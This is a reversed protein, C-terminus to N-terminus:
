HSERFDVRAANTLARRILLVAGTLFLLAGYIPLTWTLMSLLGLGLMAFLLARQEGLATWRVKRLLKCALLAVLIIGAVWGLRKANSELTRSVPRGTIDADGLPTTFRYLKGRKPIQIELGALGAFQPDAIGDSLVVWKDDPAGDANEELKKEGAAEMRSGPATFANAAGVDVRMATPRDSVGDFVTGRQALNRKTQENLRQEYAQLAQKGGDSPQQAPLNPQQTALGPRGGFAGGAGGGLGGGIGGGFGGMGQGKELGERSKPMQIQPLALQQAAQQQQPNNFTSNSNLNLTGSNSTAFRGDQLQNRTLNSGNLNVLGNAALWQQDFGEAKKPTAAQSMEAQPKDAAPANPAFNGGLETVVNKAKVNGQGLFEENLVGANQVAVTGFQPLQQQVHAEQKKEAETWIQRNRDLEQRLQGTQDSQGTYTNAGSANLTGVLSGVDSKLEKLSNFARAKAFDDGRELTQALKETSKNYYSINGSLLVSEEEVLKMTGGFSLWDFSEPVYLRVQSLEVKINVTHILPFKVEEFSHLSQLKGGYVLKVEYDLDGEATKVLPIRVHQTIPMGKISLPGKTRQLYIPKVPEGAVWATWLTASLPLDVTLFQETKNDVRYTQLGRYAGFEDVVLTTEALGIRAGATDVTDRTKTKYTLQPDAAAPEVRYAQTAGGRLLGSIVQWNQQQRALPELGSTKDVVLEDRGFGELTVFRDEVRVNEPQPLPAAQADATRLRDNEVLVRLQGMVEDQLELRVRVLKGDTGVPEIKKERLQPVEIKADALAAPILFVIERIGADRVTYDLLLTEEVARDTVRVNTITRVTVTPKRATLQLTGGYDGSTTKLALRALSRQADRLWGFTRDLLELECGRLDTAEVDFAPDVQVVLQGERREVDLVELRPLSVSQVAGPAGVLGVLLVEIEGTHGAAFYITLLSRGDVKTVAWEFTGAATVQDLRLGDPLYARFRHLPAGTIRLKIQTEFWREREAIKLVSHSEALAKTVLPVVSLKLSFPVAVFRYTEYARMGLPSVDNRDASAPHAEIGGIADIRAVGTTETTRLDLIASRRISLTGNHVAAGEIGVVPVPLSTPMADFHTRRSLFIAFEERGTASRLLDIDLKREDGVDRPEWGRVNRGTVREVLYDKPVVVTFRERGVAGFELETRWALRLGDDQVAFVVESKAKLSDDVQALNIKPRWEIRLAGDSGLATAFTENAKTTTLNRRDPIGGLRLDTDAQPVTLTLSTAPAVPLTGSAIRWGGAKELTLRVALELRHKGRGSVVLQLQAPLNEFPNPRSSQPMASQQMQPQPMAPQSAPKAAAPNVFTLRAPKGDLTASALVGGTLPLPIEVFEDTFLEFEISGELLLFDDGTLTSKFAAGATSYPVPPRPPARKAPYALNTLEQYKDYPVLLQDARPLGTAPADQYLLIVADNPVAIPRAVPPDRDEDREAARAACNLGCFVVFLPALYAFRHLHPRLKGATWRAFAVALYFPVLLCAAYFSPNVLPIWEPRFTILPLLTAVACVLLVYRVKRRRPANILLAGYLFVLAAGVLAIGGSRRRDVLTVDLAPAVGLSEFVAVDGTSQLDIQLSRVGALDLLASSKGYKAAPKKAPAPGGQPGAPPADKAAAVGFPDSLPTSPFPTTSTPMSPPATIPTPMAMDDPKPEGSEASKGVTAKNGVRLDRDSVDVPRQGLDKGEDGGYRGSGTSSAIAPSSSEDRGAAPAGRRASSKMAEFPRGVGGGLAGLFGAVSAIALREPRRDADTTMTSQSRLVGYGAPLHLEWRADAMPVEQPEAKPASRLYLALAPIRIRGFIMLKETETEYAIKLTRLKEGEAAPFSLLIRDAERQPQAAKGDLLVSWLTSDAPLKAELYGAKTRLRFEATTQARGNGGLVTVYKAAEVLAPQLGYTPHRIVTISTASADGVFGFAGLLRRGTQYEAEALEGVDIKRPHSVVQVDLDAHGEVAVTGSQYAVNDARIIPLALKATDDKPDAKPLPQQFDVALRVRGQAAASLLATWRRGAPTEVSTYEKLVLGDLGRVTVAAPTSTPLLFELKRTRARAIDYALEYHAHLVDPDVRLFSYTRATTRPKTREVVLSARYGPEYRYALRAAVDVLGYKPREAEDLPTLKELTDPRVTLDDKAAVALAGVDLAAGVVAFTPFEVTKTEWADLWGAPVQTAHLFVSETSGAAIKKVLRVHIRGAAEAPNTNPAPPAAAYREFPIPAGDASTVTVIKWGEPVTFDFEHLAEAEPNLAFGGRLELGSEQVTLLLNTTPLLRAPPRIFQAKMEVNGDPAYYAVIPRLRPAGPEAAFVSEPLAQTLVDNDIPLMGQAAIDEAKLRDELLLGVVSMRGVVDLPELKPFTWADLKAPSRVAAINMVVGDTTEQRLSVELVRKGADTTTSWRALLPSQVDSIEFGDPIAFRFKDVAQHLISFSVTAHLREYASTVEDVVVSRAVVVKQQRRTRNNLSLSLSMPGETPVLELETRTTAADVTRSVLNAGGRVEVNGEASVRLRSSPLRPLQVKLTQESANTELLAVMKLTLEHRGRGEVLLTLGTPGNRRLAAPKGDLLAEQVGVFGLDFSLAQLGDALVDCTLKATIFARLDELRVDYEAALLSAQHPLKEAPNQKAKTLLADYEERTMLVRRVPGELLVNLEEFPVYIERAPTERVPPRAPEAATALAPAFLMTLAIALISYLKIM